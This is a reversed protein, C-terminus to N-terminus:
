GALIRIKARRPEPLLLAQHVAGAFAYAADVHGKPAGDEGEQGDASANADKGPPPKRAFRWGDGVKLRSAGGLHANLLPDNSHLVMRGKTLSALGMCAECVEGGTIDAYAPRGPAADALKVPRGKPARFAPALSAAPGSPYWAIVSPKMRALLGPLELRAAAASPWSAAIEGRVKGEPTRAAVALTAHGDDPAVDFCAALRNRLSDMTVAPDACAEWAKMDIASNLSRVRQCMVEARYIDPPDNMATRIASASIKYGLSPNAQAIQAWDDIDCYTDGDEDYEGSWELLCITPDRGTLAADRLQNLVVSNDDGANSMAWIQSNHKAMTTKSTAAWSKWDYHQALEDINVEDNSGGRGAKRTPAKIAYRSGNATWFMEDGNVNRVRGWEEELVPNEHITDQCMQWQDRALSLDQAIGLIRCKPQMYMRWLSVTRKITSNHTPVLNRGALYLGDPSDVQICRVPRSEVPEISAISLTARGKNGDIDRIREVKRPLRFPCFPDTTKPTFMVRYKPGCDKGNLTARGTRVTARWGLSRTLFCVADALPRLVSCFEVQGRQRDIFGDTDMLGQLLAERQSTGATLYIDPVHKNGLLGLQRLRGQVTERRIKGHRVGDSLMWAYKGSNPLKTVPEGARLIETVIEEDACTFGASGSHGDGLWAGLVYPDIPLPVEPSKVPEQQPLVFRYENTAYRKGTAVSSRGGSKYRSVGCSAMEGTTMTFTEFWRVSNGRPGLGRSRRKDTVTWLHDRDATVARGDTTTVQYCDHDHMIESVATVRTLCGSPHYVEDGERIDRMTVFGRTTLIETDADLAKGNQRAVVIIIIRFRYDGGPLLELAHIVAWRQWPLFPEGIMEAFDAVDYGDSTRRNLPRLPPTFLRPTTKGRINRPAARLAPPASGTSSARPPM